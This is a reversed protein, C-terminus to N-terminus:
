SRARRSPRIEPQYSTIAAVRPGTSSLFTSLTETSVDTPLLSLPFRNLAARSSLAALAILYLPTGMFLTVAVCAAQLLIARRRRRPTM